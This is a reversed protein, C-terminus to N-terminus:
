ALSSSELGQEIASNRSGVKQWRRRLKPSKSAASFNDSHFDRSSVSELSEEYASANEDSRQHLPDLNSYKKVRIFDDPLGGVGRDNLCTSITDRERRRQHSRSLGNGRKSKLHTDTRLSSFHDANQFAFSKTNRPLGGNSSRLQSNSPQCNYTEEGRRPSRLPGALASAYNDIEQLDLSFQLKQPPFPSVENKIRILTPSQPIV